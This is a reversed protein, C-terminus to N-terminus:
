FDFVFAGDRDVRHFKIGAERCEREWREIRTRHSSADIVILEPNYTAIIQSIQANVNQTLIAIDTNIVHPGAHEPPMNRSFVVLRKDAFHKFNGDSFLANNEIRLASDLQIYSEQVLQMATRQNNLFGSVNFAENSTAYFVTNNRGNVFQLISNGQSNYVVFQQRQMENATRITAGAAWCVIVALMGLILKKKKTLMWAGAVAIIVYAFFVEWQAFRIGSIVSGPLKEIFFILFNVIYMFKDFLWGFADFLVNIPSIVFLLVAGYIVVSAAPIVIFNTIIFYSPFQNFYYIAM